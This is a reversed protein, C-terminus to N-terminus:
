SYAVVKSTTDNPMELTKPPTVHSESLSCKIWLWRSFTVAGMDFMRWYVDAICITIPIVFLAGIAFGFHSGFLVITENTILRGITWIFTWHIIYFAFSIDGLYRALPSAFPRQLIPLNELALMIMIAALSYWFYGHLEESNYRQPTLLDLTVLGPTASANNCPWSGIFLGFVFVLSWFVRSIVTVLKTTEKNHINILQLFDELCYGADKQVLHFEALLIGSVFLFTDWHATQLCYYAFAALLLVRMAAKTKSLCLLLLFVVMSGRFEMPLTWMHPTHKPHYSGWSFPDILQTFYGYEESLRNFLDPYQVNPDVPRDYAEDNYWHNYNCIASVVLPPILPLFLRPVRRFVSSALCDLLAPDRKRILRLPKCSLVFGSLIFFNAVMFRGTFILRVFPLQLYRSEEPKSLYGNDLFKFYKVLYHQFFVCLAAVGRVGNLYATPQIKHPKSGGGHRSSLFSPRLFRLVSMLVAMVLIGVTAVPSRQHSEQSRQGLYGDTPLSLNLMPVGVPSSMQVHADGHGTSSASTRWMLSGEHDGSPVAEYAKGPALSSALDRFLRSQTLHKKLPEM